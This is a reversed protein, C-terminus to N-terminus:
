SGAATEGQEETYIKLQEEVEIREAKTAEDEVVAPPATPDPAASGGGFIGLQWALSVGAISLAIAVFILKSTNSKKAAPAAKPLAM